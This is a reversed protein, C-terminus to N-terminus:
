WPVKWFHAPEEQEGEPVVRVDRQGEVLLGEDGGAGGGEGLGERGAGEGGGGGVGGRVGGFLELSLQLENKVHAKDKRLALEPPQGKECARSFIPMAAISISCHVSASSSSVFLSLSM